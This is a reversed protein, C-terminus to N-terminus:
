PLALPASARLFDGGGRASPLLVYNANKKALIDLRTGRPVPGPGIHGILVAALVRAWSSPPPAHAHLETHTPRYSLEYVRSIHRGTFVALLVLWRPNAFLWQPGAM